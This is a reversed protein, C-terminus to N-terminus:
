SQIFVLNLKTCFVLIWRQLMKSCSVILVPLSRVWKLPHLFVFFAVTTFCIRDSIECFIQCCYKGFYEVIDTLIKICHKHDQGRGGASRSPMRFSFCCSSDLRQCCRCSLRTNPFCSSLKRGFLSNRLEGKRRFSSNTNAMRWFNRACAMRNGLANVAYITFFWM